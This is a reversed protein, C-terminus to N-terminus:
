LTKGGGTPVNLTFVGKPLGAKERVRTLIESRLRNIPIESNTAQKKLMFADFRVLLNSVIATLAQWDRDVTEGRSAAYFRETDVYDADVLCSFAMRGLM